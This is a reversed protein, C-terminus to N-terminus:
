GIEPTEQIGLNTRAPLDARLTTTARRFTWRSTQVAVRQCKYVQSQNVNQGFWLFDLVTYNM